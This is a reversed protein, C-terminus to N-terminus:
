KDVELERDTGIYIEPLDMRLSDIAMEFLRKTEDSISNEADTTDWDNQFCEDEYECYIKEIAWDLLETVSLEIWEEEAECVAGHYQKDWDDMHYKRFEEVTIVEDWNEVYVYDDDKLESLKM